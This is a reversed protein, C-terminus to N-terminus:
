SKYIPVIRSNKLAGPVYGQHLSKCFLATLPKSLTHACNKLMKPSIGDPGAGKNVNISKLARLVDVEKINIDFSLDECESLIQDLDIGDSRTYQSKFFDAFIEAKSTDTKATENNYEVIAPIDSRKRSRFLQSQLQIFSDTITNYEGFNGTERARKYAKRRINKLHKLPKTYWPPDTSKQVTIKPVFLDIAEHLVNDFIQFANELDDIRDMRSLTDKTAFFENMTDFDVSNYALIQSLQSTTHEIEDMTIEIKIAKHWIDSKILPRTSEILSMEYFKNTFVLDLVNGAQNEVNSLQHFGIDFMTEFVAIGGDTSVNTPLYYEGDDAKIWKIDPQNFDGCVLVIDNDNFPILKVIEAFELLKATEHLSRIYVSFIFVNCSDLVIKVCVHELGSNESLTLKESIFQTEIELSHTIHIDSKYAVTKLRMEVLSLM